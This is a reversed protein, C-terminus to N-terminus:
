YIRPSPLPQSRFSSEERQLYLSAQKIAFDCLAHGTLGNQVGTRYYFLIVNRAYITDYVINGRNAGSFRNICEIVSEFEDTHRSEEWYRKRDINRSM